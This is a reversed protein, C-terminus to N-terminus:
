EGIVREHDGRLWDKHVHCNGHDFSTARDHENKLETHPTSVLELLQHRILEIDANRVTIARLTLDPWKHNCEQAFVDTLWDDDHHSLWELISQSGADNDSPIYANISAEFTEPIACEIL